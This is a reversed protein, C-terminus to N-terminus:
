YSFHKSLDPPMWDAVSLAATEFVPLVRSEQWWPEGSAQTLGAALVAIMVIAIGRALGFAAGLLRDTGSLGTKDILKAILHNVLGCVLLSAILLAIFALVMRATPITLYPELLKSARAAFTAAVWFAAVWALLSLVEKVFGRFVSVILSIAIISLICIDAWNM